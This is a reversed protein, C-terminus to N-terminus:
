FILKTQGVYRAISCRCLVRHGGTQTSLYAQRSLALVDGGDRPPAFLASVARAYEVNRFHRSTVFCVSRVRSRNHRPQRRGGHTSLGVEWVRCVLM